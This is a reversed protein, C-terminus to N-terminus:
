AAKKAMLDYFSAPTQYGLAAHPREGDARIAEVDAAEERLAGGAEWRDPPCPPTVIAGPPGARETETLTRVRSGPGQCLPSGLEICSSMM